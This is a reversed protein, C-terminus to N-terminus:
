LSLGELKELLSDPIFTTSNKITCLTVSFRIGSLNKIYFHVASDSMRSDKM